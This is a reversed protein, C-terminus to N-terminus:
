HYFVLYNAKIHIWFDLKDVGVLHNLDGFSASDHNVHIDLM